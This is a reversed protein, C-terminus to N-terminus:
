SRMRTMQQWVSGEAEEGGEIRELAIQVQMSVEFEPDDQAEKLAPIATEDGAEYLFRAARWRVIKNKDKLAKIMPKIASTDGLDSLTDGATRRVSASSDELAQFLLPLVKSGKIEGLYVVVLRRISSKTDQLAKELVFLDEETPKMKDLAAYRTRWDEDKLRLLVEEATIVERISAVEEGEGAEAAKAMLAKLREEDYAADLEQLVEEAIEKMDGYRVGWDVLKRERILNPSSLGSEMAANVFREPLAERVEELDTKVRIQMPINRFTQIWVNVEGFGDDVETQEGSTNMGEGFVERAQSLIMKWDGQPIRDISIFDATQFVSKVGEIELLKQIYDPSKSKNDKSYTKMVGGPLQEDMNLKMANPSPTPEISVIKMWDGGERNEFNYCV